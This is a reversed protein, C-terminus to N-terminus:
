RSALHLISFEFVLVQPQASRRRQDCHRRVKELNHYYGVLLKSSIGNLLKGAEDHCILFIQWGFLELIVNNRPLIQFGYRAKLEKWLPCGGVPFVSGILGHLELDQWASSAVGRPQIERITSGGGFQDTAGLGFVLEGFM